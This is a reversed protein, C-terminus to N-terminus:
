IVSSNFLVLAMFCDLTVDHRHCNGLALSDLLNGPQTVRGVPKHKTRVHNQRRQRTTQTMVRRSCSSATVLKWGVSPVVIVKASRPECARSENEHILRPRKICDYATSKLHQNRSLCSVTGIENEFLGLWGLLASFRM